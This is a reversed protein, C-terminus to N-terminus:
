AIILIQFSYRRVSWKFLLGYWQTCYLSTQSAPNCFKVPPILIMCSDDCSTPYAYTLETHVQSVFHVCDCIWIVTVIFIFPYTCFLRLEMPYAISNRRKRPLENRRHVLCSLTLTVPSFIGVQCASRSVSDAVLADPLWSIHPLKM